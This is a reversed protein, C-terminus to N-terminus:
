NPYLGAWLLDGSLFLKWELPLRLSLDWWPVERVSCGKMVWDAPVSKWVIRACWGLDPWSNEAETSKAGVPCKAM